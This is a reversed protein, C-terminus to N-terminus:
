GRRSEDRAAADLVDRPALEPPIPLTSGTEVPPHYAAKVEPQWAVAAVAVAAILPALSDPLSLPLSATLSLLPWVLRAAVLGGGIVRAYLFATLPALLGVLAIPWSMHPISIAFCAPLALLLLPLLVAKSGPGAAAPLRRIGSRVTGGLLAVAASTSVILGAVWFPGVPRTAALFATLALTVMAYRHAWRANAVVIGVVAVAAMTILGFGLLLLSKADYDGPDAAVEITWLIAALLPGTAM